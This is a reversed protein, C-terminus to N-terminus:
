VRDVKLIVDEDAVTATLERVSISPPATVERVLAHLLARPMGPVVVPGVERTALWEEVQRPGIVASVSRGAHEVTITYANGIDPMVRGFVM